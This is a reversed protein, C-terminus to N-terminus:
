LAYYEITVIITDAYEGPVVWTQGAPIRGYIWNTRSDNGLEPLLLTYSISETGGSGDGWVTSRGPDTYLNYNLVNAGSAMSRSVYSGDNGTSLKIELSVLLGILGSCSVTVSSATDVAHGSLPYYNGFAHPTANAGCTLALSPASYFFLSLATSRLVTKMM